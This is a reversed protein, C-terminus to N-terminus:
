EMGRVERGREKKKKKKKKSKKKVVEPVVESGSSEALDIVIM